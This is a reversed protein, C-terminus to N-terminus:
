SMGVSGSPGVCSRQELYFCLYAMKISTALGLGLCIIWM